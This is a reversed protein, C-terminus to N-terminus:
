SRLNTVPDPVVPPMTYVCDPGQYTEIPKNFVTDFGHVAVWNLVAQEYQVFAVPNRALIFLLIGSTDSVVAWDYKENVVPGVAIVLYHIDEEMQGNIELTLKGNPEKMDQLLFGM